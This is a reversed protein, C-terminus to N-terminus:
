EGLAHGVGINDIYILGEGNLPNATDGIGIAM